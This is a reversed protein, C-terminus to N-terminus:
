SHVVIRMNRDAADIDYLGISCRTSIDNEFHQRFRM